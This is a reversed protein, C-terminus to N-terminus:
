LNVLKGRASETWPVPCIIVELPSRDWPPLHIKSLNVSSSPVIKSDQQMLWSLLDTDWFLFQHTSQSFPGFAGHVRERLDAEWSLLRSRPLVRYSVRNM